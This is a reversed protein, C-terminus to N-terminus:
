IQILASVTGGSGLQNAGEALTYITETRLNSVLADYTLALRPGGSLDGASFRGTGNDGTYFVNAASVAIGGRDDGTIADHEVVRSASPTLATIKFIKGPPLRLPG